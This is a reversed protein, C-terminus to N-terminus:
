GGYVKITFETLHAAVPEIHVFVGYGMPASSFDAYYLKGAMTALSGDNKFIGRYYDYVKQAEVSAQYSRIIYTGAEDRGGLPSCTLTAGLYPKIDGEPRKGAKVLSEPFPLGVLAHFKLTEMAQDPVASMYRWLTKALSQMGEPSLKKRDWTIWQNTQFRYKTNVHLDSANIAEEVKKPEPNTSALYDNLAGLVRSRAANSLGDRVSVSFLMQLYSGNGESLNKIGEDLNGAWLNVLALERALAYKVNVNRNAVQKIYPAVKVALSRKLNVISYLAHGFTEVTNRVEYDTLDAALFGPLLGDILSFAKVPDTEAIIRFAGANEALTKAIGLAKMAATSADAPRDLGQHMRAIELWKGADKADSGSPQKPPKGTLKSLEIGASTKLNSDGKITMIELLQIAEKRMGKQILMGSLTYAWPDIYEWGTTGSLRKLQKRIQILDGASTSKSLTIMVGFANQDQTEALDRIWPQVWPIQTTYAMTEYLVQNNIKRKSLLSFLTRRDEETVSEIGGALYQADIFGSRQTATLMVTLRFAGAKSRGVTQEIGHCAMRLEEINMQLSFHSINPDMKINKVWIAFPIMEPIGKSLFNMALPLGMEWGRPLSDKEAQTLSDIKRGSRNMEAALLVLKDCRPGTTTAVPPPPPPQAFGPPLTGPMGPMGGPIVPMGPMTGTHPSPEASPPMMITWQQQWDHRSNDWRADSVKVEKGTDLKRCWLSNDHVTSVENSPKIYATVKGTMSLLSANAMSDPLPTPTVDPTDIRYGKGNINVINGDASISYCQGAALRRITNSEEASVEYTSIAAESGDDTNRSTFYIRRSDPSWVVKAMSNDSSNIVPTSPSKEVDKDIMVNSVHLRYNNADTAGFYAVQIGNPSLTPVQIYSWEKTITRTFGNSLNKSCLIHKSGGDTDVLYVLWEDRSSLAIAHPDDKPIHRLDGRIIYVDLPGYKRWGEEIGMNDKPFVLWASKGNSSTSICEVQLGADSVQKVEINDGNVTAMSVSGDPSRFVLADRVGEPTGHLALGTTSLLIAGAILLRQIIRQWRTQANM